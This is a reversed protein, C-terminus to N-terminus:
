GEDERAIHLARGHRAAAEADEAARRKKREHDVQRELDGIRTNKRAIEERYERREVYMVRLLTGLMGVLITGQALAPLSPLLQAVTM